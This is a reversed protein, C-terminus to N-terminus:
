DKKVQRTHELATSLKKGYYIMLIFPFVLWMANPIIFVTMLSTMDVNRLRHGGNCLDTFQIVCLM